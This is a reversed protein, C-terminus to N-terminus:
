GGWGPKRRADAPRALAFVAGLLALTWWISAAGGGSSHVPAPAPPAPVVLETSTGTEVLAYTTPNWVTFNQAAPQGTGTWNFQVTLKAEPDTTGLGSGSKTADFQAPLGPVSYLVQTTWDTSTPAVVAITTEDVVSPDFDLSLVNVGSALSVNSVTYTMEYKNQGLSRVQYQVSTGAALTPGVHGVIAALLFWRMSATSKPPNM